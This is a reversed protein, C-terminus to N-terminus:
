AQIVKQIERTCTTSQRNPKIIHIFTGITKKIEYVFWLKEIIAYM